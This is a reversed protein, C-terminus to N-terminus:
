ATSREVGSVSTMSQVAMIGAVRPGSVKLGSQLHKTVYFDSLHRGIGLEKAKAPIM